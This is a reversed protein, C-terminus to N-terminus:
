YVIEIRSVGGQLKVIKIQKNIREKLAEMHSIVGVIRGENKLSNLASLVAELSESDLTGFGEDLFLSGIKTKDSVLDSLALALSLSVIFSEGGSLTEIPRKINAQYQDIIEIELENQVKNLLYRDNLKQLHHNAISILFELTISSAFERYKGGDSSGILTNLLDLTYFEKEEREKEKKINEVEKEKEENIKLKEKLSAIKSIVEDRTSSLTKLEEEKSELIKQNFKKQKIKEKEKLKAEIEIKEKEIKSKEKELKEIEKPKLLSRQFDKIDEFNENKLKLYFTDKAKKTQEKKLKAEKKLDNINNLQNSLTTIQNIIKLKEKEINSIKRETEEAKQNSKQVRKIDSQIKTKLNDIISLEKEIDKIKLSKTEKLIGEKEKLLHKLRKQLSSITTEFSSKKSLIKSYKDRLAKLIEKKEKIEKEIKSLNPSKKNVWPHHTSGCLPCPKNEQLKKREEELSLIKEGFARKEEKEELIEETYKIEKDTIQLQTNFIQLNEKAKKEEEKINEIEKDIKELREIDKKISKYFNEKKLINEQKQLFPTLDEKKPSIKKLNEIEKDKNEIEKELNEINKSINFLHNEISEQSPNKINLIKEIKSKIQFYEKEKEQYNEWYKSINNAKLAKKLINFKDRNKEERKLLEEKQKKLMEIEFLAEKIKKLNEIEERKEEILKFIEKEKSILKEKKSTIEKKEEDSLLQFDEIRDQLRKLKEKKEKHKQFVKQSIISYIDASTIKELLQAKHKPNAKLFADFNGQALIVSKTFRDFDLGTIKEIKKPVRKVSEELIEEDLSLVMKPNQLNGESEGRARRQSYRSKYIKKNAEFEIECYFEGTHKSMLENVNKLRPTKAYLAACIADLISSKGAGTAGTIVFIEEEFKEFDIQFKGKLSNINEFSLKLIKM